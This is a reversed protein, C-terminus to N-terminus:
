RHVGHGPNRGRGSRGPYLLQEFGGRHASRGPVRDRPFRGTGARRRRIGAPQRWVQVEEWLGRGPRVPWPLIFDLLGTVSWSGTSLRNRRYGHTLREAQGAPRGRPRETAHGTPARREETQANRGPHKEALRQAAPRRRGPAPRPSAEQRRAPAPRNRNPRGQGRSAACPRGAAPGTARAAPASGGLHNAHAVRLGPYHPGAQSAKRRGAAGTAPSQPLLAVPDNQHDLHSRVPHAVRHATRDM